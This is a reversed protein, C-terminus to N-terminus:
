RGKILEYYFLYQQIIGAVGEYRDFDFGDRYHEALLQKVHTDIPFAEVHHLGFLCICNAVKKGIGKRELLTNMADDYSLKRLNDLWDLNAEAFAYIERLYDARYGFGMSRDEFIEEPVQGPKPFAYGKGNDTKIGSRECLLEVSKTIRPINNNQSIMFTVVMEWLDQKLIRIGSGKSYALKLHDDDSTNIKDAIQGYDTDLDFYDRWIANWEAEDCSLEFENGKQSIDLSKGFAAINYKYTNDKEEIQKWRFCQGSEAIQKLDMNDITIKYM